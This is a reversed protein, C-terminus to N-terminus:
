GSLGKYLLGFSIMRILISILPFRFKVSVTVAFNKINEIPYTGFLTSFVSDMREQFRRPKLVVVVALLSGAGLILGFKAGYTGLSLIEKPSLLYHQESINGMVQFYASLGGVVIAFIGFVITIYESRRDERDRSIASLLNAADIYTDSRLLPNGRYRNDSSGDMRFGGVASIYVRLFSLYAAAKKPDVDVLSAYKRHLRRRMKTAVRSEDANGQAGGFSVLPVGSDTASSHAVHTHFFEKLAIFVQAVLWGSKDLSSENINSNNSLKLFCNGQRNIIFQIKAVYKTSKDLDSAWKTLSHIGLPFVLSRIRLVFFSLHSKPLSVTVLGALCDSASSGDGGGGSGISGIEGVNTLEQRRARVVLILKQSISAPVLSADNLNRGSFAFFRWDPARRIDVEGRYFLCQSLFGKFM